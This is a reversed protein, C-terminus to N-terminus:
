VIRETLVMTVRNTLADFRPNIGIVQAKWRGFYQRAETGVDIYLTDYIRMEYYDQGHLDVTLVPRIESLRQATWVGRAIAALETTLFTDTTVEPKQRYKQFATEQYDTNTVSLYTDENWDKNYRIKASAFYIASDTVVSLNQSDKIDIITIEQREIYAWLVNGFEDAILDGSNTALQAYMMPVRLWNDIRLTIYGDARIEYRFGINAGNQILRIAEYLEMQGFVVGIPELVEAELTWEATDYISENFDVGLVRKNLDIIVDSARDNPIGTAEFLRCQKPTGDSTGGERGVGALLTFRGTVLDTTNATVDVWKRTSNNWTQITGMSTMTVGVRYQVTGTADEAEDVLCKVARVPGYILPVDEGQVTTETLIKSNQSKRKDQVKLVFQSKSFNYDEIYFSALQVIDSRQPDSIDSPLYYLNLDNGYINKLIYQNFDGGTNDLTVSGSVLALKDYNILDAKQAISPVGRLLPLYEEDAIYAVTTNSFGQTQGISYLNFDPWSTHTIHAYLLQNAHDWYFSQETAICDEVSLVKRYRINPNEVFFSVTIEQASDDGQAGFIDIWYSETTRQGPKSWYVFPAYNSQPVFPSYLAIEAIIM